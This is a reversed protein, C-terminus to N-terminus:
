DITSGSDPDYYGARNFYIGAAYTGTIKSSVCQDTSNHNADDDETRIIM